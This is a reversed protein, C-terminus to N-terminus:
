TTIGIATLVARMREEVTGPDIPVLSFGHRRYVEEHIAEFELTQEFNIRRAETPTVFGLNRIFLVSQAFSQERCLRVLEDSLTKSDDFRLYEALAATCFASRDHFQLVQPM